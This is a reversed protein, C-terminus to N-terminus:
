VSETEGPADATLRRIAGIGGIPLGVALVPLVQVAQVVLGAALAQEAPVGLPLLAVMVSGQIVGVNGPTLRFIGGINSLVLATVAAGLPIPGVTARICFYFTAWEGVWNLLDLFLPAALRRAAGPAALPELAAALARPLPALIRSWANAATLVLVVALLTWLTTRLTWAWPESPLVLAAVSLFGLLALAEVVRSAFVTAAVARVPVRDRTTLLHIRAAEGGISIAICNVAAGFLTAAQATRWRHPALPLLLLHWAWGKAVLTLLNIGTALLLAMWDAGAAAALTEAWAFGHVFRGLLVLGVVMAGGLLWRARASM